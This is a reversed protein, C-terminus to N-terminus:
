VDGQSKCHFKVYATLERLRSGTLNFWKTTIIFHSDATLVLAHEAQCYQISSDTAVHLSCTWEREDAVIIRNKNNNFIQSSSSFLNKQLPTIRKGM